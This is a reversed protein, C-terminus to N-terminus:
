PELAGPKALPRLQAPRGPASLDGFDKQIAGVRRHYGEGDGFSVFRPYRSHVVKPKHNHKIPCFRQETRGAVEQVYAILGNFYGCYLCGIKEFANLYPLKARDLELYDRRRTRPIGYIPCCLLQYLGVYLDLLLAPLLAGYIVPTSFLVPWATGKLYVWKGERGERERRRPEPSRLVYGGDLPRAVAMAVPGWRWGRRENVRRNGVGLGLDSM